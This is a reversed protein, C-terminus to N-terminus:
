YIRPLCCFHRLSIRDRFEPDHQNRYGSIRELAAERRSLKGFNNISSYVSCLIICGQAYGPSCQKCLPFSIEPETYFELPCLAGACDSLM